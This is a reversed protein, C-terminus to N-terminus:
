IAQTAKTLWDLEDGSLLPSIARFVRTHYSNLWSIEAQTMLSKDLLRLDIPILTMPTFEFMEREADKLADCRRVEVLNEIRIGFGDAKYYGPENSLVMGPQLAVGNANKGIRQPGEHVSLFHGVGHGTGHDYDFGHQWLHMRAFADLQQGTTGKPFRATDLAIHGKLVLTVMTRHEDTVEGIAITRTVDTTGDFYQAGSDVLYLSNMTLQAPTGNMHNYHCMAANSGAASITDFSPEVYQKDVLRFSELKDALLAEDYLKDAAVEKDLWALFRSVAAGDRVHCARM